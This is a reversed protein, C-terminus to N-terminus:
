IRCICKYARRETRKMLILLLLLRDEGSFVQHPFMSTIFDWRASAYMGSFGAKMGTAKWLLKSSSMLDAFEGLIIYDSPFFEAGRYWMLGMLVASSVQKEADKKPISGDAALELEIMNTGADFLRVMKKFFLVDSKQLFLHLHLKMHIFSAELFLGAADYKDLKGAHCFLPLPVAVSWAKGDGDNVPLTHAVSQGFLAQFPM